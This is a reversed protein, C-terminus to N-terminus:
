LNSRHVDDLFQFGFLGGLDGSLAGKRFERRAVGDADVNANALTVTGAYLSIFADADGAGAATDVFAEGDALDGVAFADLANERDVRREDFADIDDAATLDAAGLKVVQAITAALRSTDDLVGAGAGALQVFGLALSKGFLLCADLGLLHCGGLSEGGLLSCRFGCFCLCRCFSGFCRLSRFSGGFLRRVIM